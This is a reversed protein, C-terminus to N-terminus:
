RPPVGFVHQWTSPTRLDRAALGLAEAAAGALEVADAANNGEAAFRLLAAVPLGLDACAAALPWPPLSWERLAQEEWWSEELPPVAGAHLAGSLVGEGAQWYRLQQAGDLQEGRRLTADLGGLLLVQAVGQEQAWSAISQAFHSQCGAAVPARQQLLVLDGSRYVEMALAPGADKVHDFSKSGACPLLATHHLNGIKDAQQTEILVDLALQGLSAVTVAPIVLTSGVISVDHSHSWFEM